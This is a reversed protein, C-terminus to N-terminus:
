AEDPFLSLQRPDPERNPAPEVAEASRKPAFDPAGGIKRWLKRYDRSISGEQWEWLFQLKDRLSAIQAETLPARRLARAARYRLNSGFPFSGGAAFFEVSLAVAAIDGKDAEDIVAFLIPYTWHRQGECHVVPQVRESAEVGLALCHEVYRERLRLASWEGEGNYDTHVM